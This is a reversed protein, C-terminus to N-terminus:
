PPPDLVLGDRRAGAVAERRSHVGLARFLLRIHNRVTEVSIGMLQAMQATSCGAALHRLV